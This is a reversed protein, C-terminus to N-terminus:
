ENIYIAIVLRFGEGWGQGGGGGSVCVGLFTTRIDQKQTQLKM